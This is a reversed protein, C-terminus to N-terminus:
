LALSTRAASALGPGGQLMFVNNRSSRDKAPLRKFFIELSRNATDQCVGDHCLPAPFMACEASGLAADASQEVGRSVSRNRQPLQDAYAELTTLACPYWPLLSPSSASSVCSLACGAILMASRLLSARM